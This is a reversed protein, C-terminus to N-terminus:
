SQGAAASLLTRLPAYMVLPNSQTAKFGCRDRYYTALGENEADLYLGWATLDECKHIRLAADYILVGGLKMEKSVCDDRGLFGILAMPIPMGPMARKQHQKSVEAKVVLGPSLTYFGFIRSPEAPDPLIFVRCYNRDLFRPCENKFFGQIRESRACRFDETNHFSPNFRVTVLAQTEVAVNQADQSGAAHVRDAQETGNDM